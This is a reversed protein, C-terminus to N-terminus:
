LLTILLAGGIALCLAAATKRKSPYSVVLRNKINELEGISKDCIKLERERYGKGLSVAFDNIIKECEEGCTMECKSVLESLSSIKEDIGIKFLIEPCSGLINEIPMSFCDIQNRVYRILAIFGEIEEIKNKEGSAIYSAAGISFIMILAGGILKIM